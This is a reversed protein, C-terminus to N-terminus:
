KETREGSAGRCDGTLAPEGIETEDRVVALSRALRDEMEVEM